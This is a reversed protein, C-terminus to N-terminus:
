GAAQSTMPESWLLGIYEYKNSRVELFVLSIIKFTKNRRNSVQNENFNATKGKVIYDRDIL